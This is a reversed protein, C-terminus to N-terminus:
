TLQPSAPIGLASLSDLSDMSGSRNAPGMIESPSSSTAFSSKLNDTGQSSQPTQHDAFMFDLHNARSEDFDLPALGKVRPPTIRGHSM